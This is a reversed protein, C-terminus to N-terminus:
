ADLRLLSAFDFDFPLQPPQGIQKAECGVRDLCAVDLLDGLVPWPVICQLTLTQAIRHRMDLQARMHCAALAFITQLGLLNCIGLVPHSAELCLIVTYLVRWLHALQNLQEAARPLHIGRVKCLLHIFHVLYTPRAKAPCASVFAQFNPRPGHRRPLASSQRPAFRSEAAM